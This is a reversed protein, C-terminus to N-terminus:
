VVEGDRLDTILNALANTARREDPTGAYLAAKRIRRWAGLLAEDRDNDVSALADLILASADSYAVAFSTENITTTITTTM